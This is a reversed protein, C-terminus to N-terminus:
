ISKEKASKKAAMRSKMEELESEAASSKTRKRIETMKGELTSGGMEGAIKAEAQLNKISDRVNDLAKLDPESSLGDLSKQIRIKAESTQKMAMMKEKEAMLEKVRGKFSILDDKVKEVDKSASALEAELTHVENLLENKRQILILAAADEGMEVAAEAEKSVQDLESKADKLKEEYDNRMRMLSAAAKQLQSYRIKEKEIAAEYVIEPNDEELGKVFLSFFGTVLNKIRAFLGM